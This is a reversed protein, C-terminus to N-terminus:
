GLYVSKMHNAHPHLQILMYCDVHGFVENTSELEKENISNCISESECDTDVPM